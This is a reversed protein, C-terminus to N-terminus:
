SYSLAARDAWANNFNNTGNAYLVSTLNGVTLLKKIRWVAAAESSGPAAEGFYTTTADVEEYRTTYEVYYLFSAM